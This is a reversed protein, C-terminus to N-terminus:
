LFDQLCLHPPPLRAKEPAPKGGGGAGLELRLVGSDREDALVAIVAGHCEIRTVIMAIETQPVVVNGRQDLVVLEGRRKGVCGNGAEEAAAVLLVHPLECGDGTEIRAKIRQEADM